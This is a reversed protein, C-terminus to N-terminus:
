ALPLPRELGVACGGKMSGSSSSTRCPGTTVTESSPLPHGIATSSLPGSSSSVTNGKTLEEGKKKRLFALSEERGKKEYVRYIQLILVLDKSIVISKSQKLTSNTTLNELDFQRKKCVAELEM